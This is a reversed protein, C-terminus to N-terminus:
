SQAYLDQRGAFHARNPGLSDPFFHRGLYLSVFVIQNLHCQINKNKPNKNVYLFRGQLATGLLYEIKECKCTPNLSEIHDLWQM